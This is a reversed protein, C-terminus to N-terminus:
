RSPAQEQEQFSPQSTTPQHFDQFQLFIVVSKVTEMVLKPLKVMEKMKKKEETM